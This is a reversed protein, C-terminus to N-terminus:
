KQESVGARTVAGPKSSTKPYTPTSSYNALFPARACQAAAEVGAQAADRAGSGQHFGPGGAPPMPAPFAATLAATTSTSLVSLATMTAVSLATIVVLMASRM